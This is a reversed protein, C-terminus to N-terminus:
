AHRQRYQNMFVPIVTAGSALDDVSVNDVTAINASDNFGIIGPPGSTKRNADTDGYSRTSMSPGISWELTVTVGAGTAKLTHARTAAGTYGANFSDILVESGADVRILRCENAQDEELYTFYGNDTGGANLRAAVGGSNYTADHACDASIQQDGTPVAGNIIRAKYTSVTSVWQARDNAANVVIAGASGNNYAYDPTAPYADINANVAVTFTDTFVVSM